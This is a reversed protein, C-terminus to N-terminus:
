IAEGGLPNNHKDEKLTEKFWKHELAQAPSLRKKIDGVLLKNILDKASDSVIKFEVHKFHFDCNRIKKFVEM